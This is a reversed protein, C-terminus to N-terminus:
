NHPITASLTICHIINIRLYNLYIKMGTAQDMCQSGTNSKSRVKYVEKWLDRSNNESISKAMANKRMIEENKKVYRIAYHYKSRTSRMIQAIEGQPPSGCEKWIFHWFQSTQKHREVHENWGPITKSKKSIPLVKSAELCSAIISDHFNQISVIHSYVYCNLIKICRKFM